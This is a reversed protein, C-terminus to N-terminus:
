SIVLSNESGEERVKVLSFGLSKARKSLNKLVRKQYQEEYKQVGAEVYDTGNKIMSYILKALKHATATVAGPKGLKTVMRRYFAGLSTQSRWLNTAALRLAAAVKNACVKTKTNLKKGGSVKTGPCVGMWSSFHKETKWAEVTFGIESLVILATAASIGPIRTLDVGSKEILLKQVDFKPQNKAKPKKIRKSEDVEVKEDFSSLLKEIEIDCEQIKQQYFDYLEIAQRLSFVHEERYSGELSHEIIELQNKCRGDRLSALKKPDREGGSIARIIAQGTKGTIDSIVNHLRINMLDLAKQMHLIHSATYRVLAERHRLLSRLACISEPPRFAGSLLGYTHLQQLWQCDLVDSKRGSVNKVHRADVLRVEFGKCELFDYLPIWYVGTSEMVVTEIQCEKLWECINVLDYTFSTFERVSDKARGEPVAVFHSESGVDIGAANINIHELHKTLKAKRNKGKFKKKMVKGGVIQLKFHKLYAPPVFFCDGLRSPELRVLSTAVVQESWAGERTCSVLLFGTKPRFCELYNEVLCDESSRSFTNIVKTLNCLLRNPEKYVM